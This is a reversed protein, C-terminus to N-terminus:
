QLHNEIWFLRDDVPYSHENFDGDVSANFSFTKGALKELAQKNIKDAKHNHTTLYIYGDNDLLNFQSNYQKNLMEIDTQTIQNLRFHNLLDIFDSDTQRYIKELEIYLLKVQKFPTANFFFM